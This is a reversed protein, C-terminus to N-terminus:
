YTWNFMSRYEHSSTSRKPPLPLQDKSYSGVHGDHFLFNARGQHRFIIGRPDKVDDDSFSPTRSAYGYWDNMKGSWPSDGIYVKQSPNNILSAHINPQSGFMAYTGNYNRTPFMRFGTPCVLERLTGISYDLKGESTRRSHNMKPGIYPALLQPWWVISDATKPDTWELPRVEHWLVLGANDASWLAALVGIQRLNAACKSRESSDRVAPFVAFLMGVLILVVAIVALLEILTLGKYNKLRSATIRM